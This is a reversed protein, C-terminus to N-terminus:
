STWSRRAGAHNATARSTALGGLALGALLRRPNFGLSAVQLLVGHGSQQPDFWSGSVYGTLEMALNGDPHTAASYAPVAINTRM